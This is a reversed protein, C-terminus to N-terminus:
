DFDFSNYKKKDLRNDIIDIYLPAFADGTVNGATRMPGIIKDIAFIISVIELPYGLTALIGSLIIVAGGAVPPSGMSSIVCLIGISFYDPISLSYGYVQAVFITYICLTCGSGNMNMTAGIPMLLESSASSIGIKEQANKMNLPLAAASSGTALGIIQAPIIKKLFPLPNVGKLIMLLPYLGYVLISIGFLATFTLKLLAKIVAVDQSGVIWTTLGFIAFPAFEMIIKIMSYMVKAFSRIFEAVESHIKDKLMSISISFIVTFSIIKLLNADMAAKFVNDPIMNLFMASITMKKSSSILKQLNASSTIQNLDIGSNIGPKILLCVVIGITAGIATTVFFLILGKYAIKGLKQMDEMSLIASGISGFVLPVLTMKVLDLFIDGLIKFQIPKIGIEFYRLFIGFCIGTLIGYTVRRGISKSQFKKILAFLFNVPYFIYNIM